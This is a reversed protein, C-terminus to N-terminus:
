GVAQRHRACFCPFHTLLGLTLGSTRVDRFACTKASHYSEGMLCAVLPATHTLSQLVSNLFCTNGLNHYGPGHPYAQPWSTPLPVASSSSPLTTTSTAPRSSGVRSPDPSESAEGAQQTSTSPIAPGKGKGNPQKHSSLSPHCTLAFFSTYRDALHRLLWVNSCM